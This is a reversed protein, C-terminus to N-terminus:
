GEVQELECELECCLGERDWRMRCVGGLEYQALGQILEIGVGDRGPGRVEPGASERWWVKLAPQGPNCSAQREWSLDVRGSETSMSGHQVSNHLLERLVMVLPGVQRSHIMVNPGTCRIRAADLDSALVSGVVRCAIYELEASKWAAESLIDYGLAMAEIRTMLGKSLAAQNPTAQELMSVLALLGALNNRVRHDLEDLLARRAEALRRHYAESRRLAREAERQKRRVMAENLERGVAPCLRTLNDKMIYDHAGAKMAAVATEEGIQGSIVLFPLDRGSERLLQLAALGSFRPLVYDSVVLDWQRSLAEVMQDQTEVREYELDGYESRLHRVLLLTDDESDEVILARLKQAM